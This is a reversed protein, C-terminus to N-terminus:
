HGFSVFVLNSPEERTRGRTTISTARSLPHWLRCHPLAKVQQSGSSRGRTRAVQWELRDVRGLNRPLGPSPIVAM